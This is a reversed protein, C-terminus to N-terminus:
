VTPNAIPKTPDSSPEDVVPQEAPLATNGVPSQQTLSNQLELMKNAIDVRDQELNAIRKEQEDILKCLRFLVKNSLIRNALEGSAALPELQSFYDLDPNLAMNYVEEIIILAPNIM